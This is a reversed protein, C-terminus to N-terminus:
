FKDNAFNSDECYKKNFSCETVQLVFLISKPYLNPKLSQFINYM